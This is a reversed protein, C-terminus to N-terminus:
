LVILDGEEQHLPTLVSDPFLNGALVRYSPNGGVEYISYGQDDIGAFRYDPHPVLALDGKALQEDISPASPTLRSWLGRSEQPFIAAEELGSLVLQNDLSTKVYLRDKNAIAFFM